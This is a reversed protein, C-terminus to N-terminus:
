GNMNKNNAIIFLFLLTTVMGMFFGNAYSAADFSM